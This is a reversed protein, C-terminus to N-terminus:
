RLNVLSRSLERLANIPAMDDDPGNSVSKNGVLQPPLDISATPSSPQALWSELQCVRDPDTRRQRAKFLHEVICAHSVRGPSIIGVTLTRSGDTGGIICNDTVGTAKGVM